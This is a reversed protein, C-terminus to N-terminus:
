CFIIQQDHRKVRDAQTVQIGVTIHIQVVTEARQHDGSGTDVVYCLFFPGLCDGEGFSESCSEFWSFTIKIEKMIKEQIIELM